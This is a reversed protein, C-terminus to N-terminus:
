QVGMDCVGYKVTGGYRVGRIESYGWVGYRM